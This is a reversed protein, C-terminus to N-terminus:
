KIVRLIGELYRFKFGCNFCKRDLPRYNKSKTSERLKKNCIPCIKKLYSKRPYKEPRNYKTDPITEYKITLEKPVRQRFKKFYKGERKEREKQFIITWFNDSVEAAKKLNKIKYFKENKPFKKKLNLPVIINEKELRKRINRITDPSYDKLIEIVSVDSFGKAYKSYV